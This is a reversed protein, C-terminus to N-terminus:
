GADFAPHYEVVTPGAPSAAGAHVMFAEETGPWTCRLGFPRAAVFGFRAYYAPEGLVFISREGADACLRLGERILAGGVGRGQWEPLVAIPGLAAAPVPEGGSDPRVHVRSFLAHGVVRGRSEAVLSCVVANAERLADVIGAEVGGAFAAENVARIAAIDSPSEGRVVFQGSDTQHPKM